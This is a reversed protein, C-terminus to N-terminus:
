LLELVLFSKNVHALSSIQRSLQYSSLLILKKFLYNVIKEYPSNLSNNEKLTESKSRIFSSKKSIYSSSNLILISRIALILLVLSIAKFSHLSCCIFHILSEYFFAVLLSFYSNLLIYNVVM